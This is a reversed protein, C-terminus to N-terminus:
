SSHKACLFFEFKSATEVMAPPAASMTLLPAMVQTHSRLFQSLCHTVFVLGGVLLLWWGLRSGESKRQTREWAQCVCWVCVSLCVCVCVIRADGAWPQRLFGEETCKQLDMGLVFIKGNPSPYLIKLKFSSISPPIVLSCNPRDSSNQM